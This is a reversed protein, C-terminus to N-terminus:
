EEGQKVRGLSGGRPVSGPLRSDTDRGVKSASGPLLRAQRAAATDGAAPPPGPLACIM